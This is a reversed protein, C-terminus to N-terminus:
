GTNCCAKWLASRVAPRLSPMPTLSGGGQPSELRRAYHRGVARFARSHITSCQIWSPFKGQAEKAIGCNFALYAGQKGPMAKALMAQTSTKGTGALAEIRMSEGRMGADAIAQQQETPQM